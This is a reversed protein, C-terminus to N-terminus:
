QFTVDSFTADCPYDQDGFIRLGIRGTAFTTDEAQLVTVDNLRVEILPGRAAVEIKVSQGISPFGPGHCYAVAADNGATRKDLRIHGIGYDWPCPTGDPSYVLIYGNDADQMRLALSAERNTTSAIVSLTFDGYKKSSALISDGTTSHANIKGGAWTWGRSDGSIVSWGAPIPNELNWVTVTATGAALVCVSVVVATKAKAWAMLKLAGKILTLTSGSAAVGKVIVV